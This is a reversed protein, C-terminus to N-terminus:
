ADAPVGSIRVEIAEGNARRTVTLEGRAVLANVTALRTFWRPNRHGTWDAKEVLPCGPWTWYGHIVRVLTGGNRRVELMVAEMSPSLKAM